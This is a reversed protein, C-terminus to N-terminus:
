GAKNSMRLLLKISGFVAGRGCGGCSVSKGRSVCFNYTLNRILLLDLNKLLNSQIEV